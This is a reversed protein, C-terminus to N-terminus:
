PNETKGQLADGFSGQVRTECTEYALIGGDQLKGLSNCLDTHSELTPADMSYYNDNVKEYECNLKKFEEMLALREPGPMKPNTFIVRVTRHGSPETVELIEPLNKETSFGTRVLDGRNLGYAACPISMVEYTDDGVKRAWIQESPWQWHNPTSVFIEHLTSDKM